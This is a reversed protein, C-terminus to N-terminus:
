GVEKLREPIKGFPLLMTGDEGKISELLKENIESVTDAEPAGVQLYENIKRVAFIVTTHDEGRMKQAIEKLSLYTYLRCFYFFVHRAFSIETKRTNQRIQEPTIGMSDCVVKLIFDAKITKRTHNSPAVLYKTKYEIKTIVKERSYRNLYDRLLGVVKQEGHKSLPFELYANMRGLFDKEITKIDM